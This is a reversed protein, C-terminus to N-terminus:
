LSRDPAPTSSAGFPQITPYIWIISVNPSATEVPVLIAKSPDDLRVQVAPHTDTVPRSVPRVEDQRSPRAAPSEVIEPAQFSTGVHEAAFWVGVAAAVAATLSFVVRLRRRRRWSRIGGEIRDILSAPLPDADRIGRALLRDIRQQRDIERSCAACGALHAEFKAADDKSLWGGLYADLNDCPSTNM